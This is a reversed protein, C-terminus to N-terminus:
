HNALHAFASRFVPFNSNILSPKQNKNQYNFFIAEGSHVFKTTTFKPSYYVQNCSFRFELIFLNKSDSNISLISAIATTLHQSFIRIFKAPQKLLAATFSYSEIRKAESGRAVTIGVFAIM